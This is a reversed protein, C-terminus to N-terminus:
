PRDGRRRMVEFRIREAQEAAFLLEGTSALKAHKRQWHACMVGAPSHANAGLLVHGIEHAAAAGLLHYAEVEWRRALDQVKSYSVNACCFGQSPEIDPVALGLVEDPEGAASSSLIRLWFETPGLEQYYCPNRTEGGTVIPSCELFRIEVGAKGLIHALVQEARLLTDQSVNAWNVIRLTIRLSSQPDEAPRATALTPFVLGLTGFFRRGDM